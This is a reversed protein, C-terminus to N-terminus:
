KDKYLCNALHEKLKPIDKFNLTEKCLFCQNRITVQSTSSSKRGPTKSVKVAPEPAVESKEEKVVFVNEDLTAAPTITAEDNKVISMNKSGEYDMLKEMLKEAEEGDEMLVMELAGHQSSM